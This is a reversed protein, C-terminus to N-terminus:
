EERARFPKLRVRVEMRAFLILIVVALWKIVGM